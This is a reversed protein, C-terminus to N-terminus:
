PRVVSRRAVPLRETPRLLYLRGDDLHLVRGRGSHGPTRLDRVGRWGGGLLVRDGRRVDFPGLPRPLECWDSM